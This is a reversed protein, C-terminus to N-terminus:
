INKKIEKAKWVVNEKKESRRKENKEGSANKIWVLSSKNIKLIPRHIEGVGGTKAEM